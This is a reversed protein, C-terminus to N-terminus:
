KRAITHWCFLIVSTGLVTRMSTSSPAVLRIYELWYGVDGAVKQTRLMASGINWENQSKLKYFYHVCVAV